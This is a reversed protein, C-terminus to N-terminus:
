FVFDYVIYTITVISKPVLYSWSDSSSYILSLSPSRPKGFVSQLKTASGRDSISGTVITKDMGDGYITLNPKDRPIMVMEEYVGAKVYIVYKTYSAPINKIADNITKYKGSGDQAM